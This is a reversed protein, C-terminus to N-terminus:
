GNLTPSKHCAQQAVVKTGSEPRKGIELQWNISKARERMSCLGFRRSSRGSFNNDIGVGDDEISLQTGSSNQEFKVWINRAKAHKRINHMSEQIIRMLQIKVNPLLDTEGNVILHCRLGTQVEFEDVYEHLAEGFNQECDAPARLDFIAWRVDDYATSTSEHMDSLAKLADDYQGVQVMNSILQTSLNLYGITQAL